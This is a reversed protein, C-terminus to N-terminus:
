RPAGGGGDSLQVRRRRRRWPSELMLLAPVFRAVAHVIVLLTCLSTASARLCVRASFVFVLVHRAPVLLSIEVVLM